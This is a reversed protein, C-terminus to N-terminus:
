NTMGKFFLAVLGGLIITALIGVVRYFTNVIPKVEEHTAYRAQQVKLGDFEATTVYGRKLADLIDQQTLHLGGLQTETRGMWGALGPPIRESIAALQGKTEAIQSAFGRSTERLRDIEREHRECDAPPGAM